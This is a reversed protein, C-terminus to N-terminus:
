HDVIRHKQPFPQSAEEGVGAERHDARGLVRGLEQPTDLEGTGVNRDDVDLHRRRMRVLPDGCCLLDTPRM